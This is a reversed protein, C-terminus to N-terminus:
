TPVILGDMYASKDLIGRAPTPLGNESTPIGVGQVNQSTVPAPAVSVSAATTVAPLKKEKKPKKKAKATSDKGKKAKKSIPPPSTRPIPIPVPVEFTFDSELRKAPKKHRPSETALRKKATPKETWSKTKTAKQKIKRASQTMRRLDKNARDDESRENMEDAWDIVPSASPKKRGTSITATAPVNLVPMSEQAIVASPNGGSPVGMANDDDMEIDDTRELSMVHSLCCPTDILKPKNVFLNVWGYGAVQQVM